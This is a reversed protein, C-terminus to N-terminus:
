FRENIMRDMLIAAACSVNLSDFGNQMEINLHAQMKAQLRKPLGYHENGLFLAWKDLRKLELSKSNNSATGILCYGQMKLNNALDYSNFHVAMPMDFIAGSSAKAAQEIKFDKIKCIYIGDIGLAYASRCISGINGMDTIDSLVLIQKADKAISKLKVQRLKALIGQHKAGKSLQQATKEDILAYKLGKLSKLFFKDINKVCYLQEILEIHRNVVYPVLQKGYVIM